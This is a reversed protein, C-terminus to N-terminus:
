LQVQAITHFNVGQTKVDYANIVTATYGTKILYEKREKAAYESATLEPQSFIPGPKIPTILYIKM